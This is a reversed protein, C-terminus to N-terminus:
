FRGDISVEFGAVVCTALSVSQSRGCARGPAYEASTSCPQGPGHSDYGCQRTHGHRRHRGTSREHRRTRRGFRHPFCHEKGERLEDRAHKRTNWVRTQRSRHPGRPAVRRGTSAQLLPAHARAVATHSSRPSELAASDRIGYRDTLRQGYAATCPAANTGEARRNVDARPPARCAARRDRTADTQGPTVVM